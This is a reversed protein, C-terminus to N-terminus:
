QYRKQKDGGAAPPLRLYQRFLGYPGHNGQPVIPIYRGALFRHRPKGPFEIFGLVPYRHLYPVYRVLIEFFLQRQTHRFTGHRIDRKHIRRIELKEMRHFAKQIKGILKRLQSRIHRLGQCGTFASAPNVPKRESHVTRGEKIVLLHQLLRPATNGPGPLFETIRRHAGGPIGMVAKGHCTDM